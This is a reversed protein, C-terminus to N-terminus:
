ILKEIYDAIDSVYTNYDSSDLWKGRNGIKSLFDETSTKNTSSGVGLYHIGNNNFIDICKQDTLSEESNNNLNIVINIDGMNWEQKELLEVLTYAKNTKVIIDKFYTNAQSYCVFGYTGETISADTASAVLNDNIYATISDGKAIIKYNEWTNRTWRLDSNVSLRSIEGFNNTSINIARNIGNYAGNNIGGGNDHRDLLFLYSSYNTSSLKNFRIVAGIIDDDGDVTRANFSLELNDYNGNPFYYGTLYDSNKSNVVTKTTPDYSWNGDGFHEWSNFVEQMDTAESNVYGQEGTGINIFNVAILKENLKKSIAKKLDELDVKVDSKSIEVHSSPAIFSANSVTNNMDTISFNYGDPFDIKYDIAAKNKGNPYVVFGNPCTINKIGKDNQFTLLINNDEKNEITLNTTSSSERLAINRIFPIGNIVGTSIILGVLVAITVVIVFLKRNVSKKM